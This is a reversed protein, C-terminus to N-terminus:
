LCDRLRKVINGAQEFIDEYSGEFSCRAVHSGQDYGARRLAAFFGQFNAQGEVSYGPAVRGRDALHAHRLRKGAAAVKDLSEEEIEIHYLDALLQINPHAVDDVIHAGDVMSLILNDERHNLPEIAITIGAEAALPGLERCFRVFQKEAEIASFGEPIKRAGASGLVVVEAGLSKCRRMAVRCFDLVPGLKVEPGTIRHHGPLFSNFAEVRLPSNEMAALLTEFEEDSGEPVTAAVPFELYDAGADALRAINDIFEPQPFGLLAPSCCLGFKM